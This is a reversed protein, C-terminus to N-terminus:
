VHARGIQGVATLWRAVYAKADAKGVLGHALPGESITEGIRVRPDLSAFPDQFVMQIRTTTKLPSRGEGMVAKGDMLAHGESPPHIGSIIRGLTSKGCGSEGVLGLVEGKRIDFSVRDVAHVTRTEVMSGLWAAIREGFTVTPAFRKSVAEVQVLSPVSM